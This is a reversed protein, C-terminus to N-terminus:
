SGAAAITAITATINLVNNLIATVNAGAPSAYLKQLSSDMNQALYDLTKLDIQAKPPLKSYNAEIIARAQLYSVRASDYVSQITALDITVVAVGGKGSIMDHVQNMTADVNQQVAKLQAQQDPTFQSLNANLDTEAQTLLPQLKKYSVALVTVDMTYNAAQPSALTQVIANNAGKLTSCGTMLALAVLLAVLITSKTKMM